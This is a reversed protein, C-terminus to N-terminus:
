IPTGQWRRTNSMQLMDEEKEEWESDCLQGSDLWAFMGM